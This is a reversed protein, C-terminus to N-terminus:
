SKKKYKESGIPRLEITGYKANPIKAACEIAENLDICELLFYGALQEKTESFPGDKIVQRGNQVSVCTATDQDLLPDGHRLHGRAEMEKYFAKMEDLDCVASGGENFILAMFQM